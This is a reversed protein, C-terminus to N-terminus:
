RESMEAMEMMSRAERILAKAEEVEVGDQCLEMALRNATDYDEARMAFKALWMRAKSTAFTVGTGGDAGAGGEPGEGGEADSGPSDNHIAISEGLGPGGGAGGEDAGGAAGEEQALCLEMYAKAEDVEGLRDYMSAIQLLVEPDMQSM